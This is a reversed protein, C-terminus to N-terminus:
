KTIKQNSKRLKFGKSSELKLKGNLTIKVNFEYDGDDTLVVQKAFRVLRKMNDTKLIEFFKTENNVDFERHGGNQIESYGGDNNILIKATGTILPKQYSWNVKVRM